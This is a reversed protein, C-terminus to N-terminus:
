GSPIKGTNPKPPSSRTKGFAPHKSSACFAHALAEPSWTLVRNVKTNLASALSSIAARKWNKMLLLHGANPSTGPCAKEIESISFPLRHKLILAAANSQHRVASCGWSSFLRILVKKRGARQHDADSPTAVPCSVASARHLGDPSDPKADFATPLLSRTSAIPLSRAILWRLGMAARPLMCGAGYCCVDSAQCCSTPESIARGHCVRPDLLLRRWNGEQCWPPMCHAGAHSWSLVYSRMQPVLRM